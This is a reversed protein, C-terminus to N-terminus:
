DDSSDSQPADAPPQGDGQQQGTGSGRQRDGPRGPQSGGPGGGQQMGVGPGGQNPGQQGVQQGAQPGAQPGGQQSFGRDGGAPIHSGLAVGGGFALVALLVAGGIIGGIALGRRSPPAPAVAATEPEVVAPDETIKAM